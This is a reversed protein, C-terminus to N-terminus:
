KNFHNTYHCWKNDRCCFVGEAVIKASICRGHVTLQFRMRFTLPICDTVKMLSLELDASVILILAFTSFAHKKWLAAVLEFFRDTKRFVKLYNVLIFM